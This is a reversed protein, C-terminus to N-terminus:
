YLVVTGSPFQNCASTTFRWFTQIGSSVVGLYIFARLLWINKESKWYRFFQADFFFFAFVAKQILGLMIKRCSILMLRHRSPNLSTLCKVKEYFLTAKEIIIFIETLLDHRQAIRAIKANRTNEIEKLDSLNRRNRRVKKLQQVKYYRICKTIFNTVSQLAQRAKYYCTQSM